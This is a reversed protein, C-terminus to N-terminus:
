RISPALDYEVTCYASTECRATATADFGLRSSPGFSFEYPTGARTADEVRTYIEPVGSTDWGYTKADDLLDQLVVRFGSGYASTLLVHTLEGEATVVRVESATVKVGGPGEGAGNVIVEYNLVTDGTDIPFLELVGDSALGLPAAEVPPRSLDIRIQRSSEIYALGEESFSSWNLDTVQGQTPKPAPQGLGAGVLLSAAVGVGVIAVSLIIAPLWGLWRRRDRSPAAM